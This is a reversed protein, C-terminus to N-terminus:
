SKLKGLSRCRDSCYKVLDWDREWKKRCVFPRGCAVCVKSPLNSKKIGKM